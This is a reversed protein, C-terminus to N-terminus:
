TGLCLMRAAPLVSLMHERRKCLVFAVDNMADHSIINPRFLTGAAAIIILFCSFYPTDEHTVSSERLFAGAATMVLFAHFTHHTKIQLINLWVFPAQSVVHSSYTQQNEVAISKGHLGLDPYGSDVPM